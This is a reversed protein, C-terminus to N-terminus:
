ALLERLLANVRAPNAKGGSAKMVQGVLANLAKDKGAQYQAVNGPNADVVDAIIRQLADEDDMQGLGRAAIVGDVTGGDQWLADFVRRAAANSITGDQIRAVLEGLTRAALPAQEIAIGESRLRHALVGRIWNGALGPAGCTI